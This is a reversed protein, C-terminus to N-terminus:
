MFVAECTRGRGALRAINQSIWQYVGVFRLVVLKMSGAVNGIYLRVFGKMIPSVNLRILTNRTSKNTYTYMDVFPSPPIGFSTSFGASFYDSGTSSYGPMAPPYFSTANITKTPRDINKQGFQPGIKVLIGTAAVVAPTYSYKESNHFIEFIFAKNTKNYAFSLGIEESGGLGKDLLGNEIMIGMAVSVGFENSDLLLPAQNWLKYDLAQLTAQVANQSRESFSIKEPVKESESSNNKSFVGVVSDKAYSLSNGVISGAGFVFKTTNLARAVNQLFQLRIKQFQEKKEVPLGEYGELPNVDPPIVGGHKLIHERVNDPIILGLSQKMNEINPSSEISYSIKDSIKLTISSHDDQANAEPLQVEQLLDSDDQSWATQSQLVFSTLLLFLLIINKM